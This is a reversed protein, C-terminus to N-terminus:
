RIAIEQTYDLKQNTRKTIVQPSPDENIPYEVIPIQGRWQTVEARNAWIGREGNVTIEEFENLEIPQLSRLIATEIESLFQTFQNQNGEFTSTQPGPANINAAPGILGSASSSVGVGGPHAGVGLQTSNALSSQFSPNM